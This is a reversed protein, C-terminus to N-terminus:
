PPAGMRSALEDHHASLATGVALRGGPLRGDAANKALRRAIETTAMTAVTLTVKELVRELLTPQRILDMDQVARSVRWKLSNKRKRRRAMTFSLVSAGLLAATALVALGTPLALSKAQEGIRQIQHRRADLADVARLLRSRVVNAKRELIERQREIPTRM